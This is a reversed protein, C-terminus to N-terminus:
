RNYQKILDSITKKFEAYNKITLSDFKIKKGNTLELIAEKGKYVAVNSLGRSMNIQTNKEVVKDITEFPIVKKILLLPQNVILDKKTLSYIKLVVINYLSVISFFLFIGFIIWKVFQADKESTGNTVKMESTLVVYAFYGFLCTGLIFLGITILNTKTKIIEESEM